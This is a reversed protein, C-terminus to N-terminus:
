NQGKGDEREENFKLYIRDLHRIIFIFEHLEDNEIGYLKVFELIATFPIPALSMSSRCTNLEM